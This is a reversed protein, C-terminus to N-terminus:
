YRNIELEKLGSQIEFVLTSNPDMVSDSVLDNGSEIFGLDETLYFPLATGDLLVIDIEKLVDLRLKSRRLDLLIPKSPIKEGFQLVVEYCKECELDLVNIDLDAMRLYCYGKESKLYLDLPYDRSLGLKWQPLDHSKFFRTWRNGQHSLNVIGLGEDAQFSLRPNILERDYKFETGSGTYDTLIFDRNDFSARVEIATIEEELVREYKGSEREADRDRIADWHPAVAYAATLILLISSLYAFQPVKSRSFIMQIGIAVLLVPWLDVLNIIVEFPLRGTTWGLAALGIIIFVLGWNLRGAMM